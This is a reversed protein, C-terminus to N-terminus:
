SGCQGTTIDLVLNGRVLPASIWRSWGKQDAGSVVGSGLQLQEAHREPCGLRLRGGAPASPM